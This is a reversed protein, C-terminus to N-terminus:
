SCTRVCPIARYPLPAQRKGSLRTQYRFHSGGSSASHGKDSASRTRHATPSRGRPRDAARLEGPQVAELSGEFSVEARPSVPQSQQWLPRLRGEPILSARLSLGGTFDGPDGVSGTLRLTKDPDRSQVTNRFVPSLLTLELVPEPTAQFVRSSALIRDPEVADRAVIQFARSTDTELKVEIALEVQQGAELKAVPLATAQGQRGVEELQVSFEASQGPLATAVVTVQNAGGFWREPANLELEPALKYKELPAEIGHLKGFYAPRAFNGFTPSWGSLEGPLPGRGPYERYFNGTWALDAPDDARLELASFPLFLEATWRGPARGTKVLWYRDWFADAGREDYQVGAANVAFHLYDVRGTAPALFVEVCDDTWVPGDRQVVKPSLGALDSDWCEFALYLGQTTQGVRCVTRQTLNQAGDMAVFDPLTAASQWEAEGIDGDLVPAKPLTPFTVEPLQNRAALAAAQRQSAAALREPSKVWTMLNSLFPPSPFNYQRYASSVVVIGKGIEQYAIIPRRDKDALLPTYAQSWYVPYTWPVNQPQVGQMLPHDAAVWSPPAERWENMQGLCGWKLAPDVASLWYFMPGYNADTVVLCGGKEVWARWQAGYQGFDQSNEINYGTGMVVLDYEALSAVLDAIHTNEFTTLPWGLETFVPEQDRQYWYAGDKFSSYVAAGRPPEAQVASSLAVLLLGIVMARMM